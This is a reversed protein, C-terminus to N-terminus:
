GSFIMSGNPPLQTSTAWSESILGQCLVTHFYGSPAPVQYSRVHPRITQPIHFPLPLAWWQLRKRQEWTALYQRCLSWSTDSTVGALGKNLLLRSSCNCEPPCQQAKPSWSNNLAIDVGMILESLMHSHGGSGCICSSPVLWWMQVSGDLPYHHIYVSPLPPLCGDVSFIAGAGFINFGCLSCLSAGVIFLGGLGCYIDKRRFECFLFLIPLIFFCLFWKWNFSWSFEGSLVFLSM